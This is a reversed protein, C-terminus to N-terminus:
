LLNDLRMVPNDPGLIDARGIGIDCRIGQARAKDHAQRDLAIIRHCARRIVNNEMGGCNCHLSMRGQDTSRRATPFRAKRQFKQRKPGSQHAIVAGDKVATVIAQDGARGIGNLSLDLGAPDADKRCGQRPWCGHAQNHIQLVLLRVSQGGFPVVANQTKGYRHDSFGCKGM